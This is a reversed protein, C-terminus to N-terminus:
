CTNKKAFPEFGDTWWNEDYWYGNAVTKRAPSRGKRCSSKRSISAGCRRFFAGCAHHKASAEVASKPNKMDPNACRERDTRSSTCHVRLCKQVNAQNGVLSSTTTYFNGPLPLCQGQEGSFKLPIIIITHWKSGNSDMQHHNINQDTYRIWLCIASQKTSQLFRGYAVRSSLAPRLILYPLGLGICVWYNVLQDHDVFLQFSEVM